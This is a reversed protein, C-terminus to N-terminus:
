QLVPVLLPLYIMQQHTSVPLLVYQKVRGPLPLARRWPVSPSSFGQPAKLLSRVVEYSLFWDLLVMSLPM